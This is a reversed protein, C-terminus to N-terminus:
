PAQWDHASAVESPLQEFTGSPALSGCPVQWSVPFAPQPVSPNQLPLPAQRRYAPPVDHAGGDQGAPLAVDIEPRVQSPLPVQWAAVVMEHAGKMHLPVVLQLAAQM